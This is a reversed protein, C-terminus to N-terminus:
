SSDTVELTYRLRGISLWKCKGRHLSDPIPRFANHNQKTSSSSSSTDTKKNNHNVGEVFLYVGHLVSSHLVMGMHVPMQLLEEPAPRLNSFFLKSLCNQGQNNLFNKLEKLKAQRDSVQDNEFLMSNCAEATCEKSGDDRNLNEILRRLCDPVRKRAGRERVLILSVDKLLMNLVCNLQFRKLIGEKETGQNPSTFTSQVNGPVHPQRWPLGQVVQGSPLHICFLGRPTDIYLHYAGEEALQYNQYQRQIANVSESTTTATTTGAPEPKLKLEVYSGGTKSVAWLVQHTANLLTQKLVTNVPRIFLGGVIIPWLAEVTAM